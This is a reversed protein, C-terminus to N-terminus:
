KIIHPPGLVQLSSAVGNVTLQGFSPLYGGGGVHARCSGSLPPATFCEIGLLDGKWDVSMGAGPQSFSPVAQQSTGGYAKQGVYGLSEGNPAFCTLGNTNPIVCCGFDACSKADLNGGANCPKLPANSHPRCMRVLQWTSSLEEITPVQAAATTMMLVIVATMLASSADILM